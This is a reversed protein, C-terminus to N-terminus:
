AGVRAEADALSNAHRDRIPTDIGFTRAHKFGGSQILAKVLPEAVRNNTRAREVATLNGGAGSVQGVDKRLADVYADWSSAM